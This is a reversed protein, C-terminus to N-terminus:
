TAPKPANPNNATEYADAFAERQTPDKIEAYKQSFVEATMGKLEAPNFPNPPGPPPDGGNGPSQRGPQKTIPFWDPAAEQVFKSLPVPHGLSDKVLSGDARLLFTGTEKEDINLENFTAMFAAKAQPRMTEPDVGAAILAADIDPLRRSLRAQREAVSKVKEIEAQAAEKEAAIQAELDSVRKVFLPHTLVADDSKAGEAAKTVAAAVIDQIKGKEAIGYAKRLDEEAKSLAAFTGEKHGRDYETKASDASVTKIHDALMAEVDSQATESLEETLTGDDAKQYLIATVEENTKGLIKSLLSVMMTQTM